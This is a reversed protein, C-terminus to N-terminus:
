LRSISLHTKVLFYYRDHSHIAFLHISYNYMFCYFRTIHTRSKLGMIITTVLLKTGGISVRCKKHSDAISNRDQLNFSYDRDIIVVSYIASHTILNFTPGIVIIAIVLLWDIEIIYLKIYLSWLNVGFVPDISYGRFLKIKCFASSFPKSINMLHLHYFQFFKLIKFRFPHIKISSFLFLFFVDASIINHRHM